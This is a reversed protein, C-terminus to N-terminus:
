VRGQRWSDKAASVSEIYALLFCAFALPIVGDVDRVNLGPMKLEPLGPPMQGAVSFGSSILSTTSILIISIIVLIIAVPRGPFFKEGLILLVITILGFILVKLNTEPLQSILYEPETM